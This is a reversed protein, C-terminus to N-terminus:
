PLRMPSTNGMHCHDIFLYVSRKLGNKSIFNESCHKLMLRVLKTKGQECALEFPSLRQTKNAIGLCLHGGNSLLLLAIAEAESGGDAYHVALHLPTDQTYQTPQVCNVGQNILIAAIETRAHQCAYHLPRFGRKDMVDLRAGLEVLLKIIEVNGSICAEHLISKRLNM